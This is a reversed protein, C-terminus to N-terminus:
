MEVDAVPGSIPACEDDEDVGDTEESVDQCYCKHLCMKCYELVPELEEYTFDRTQEEIKTYALYRFVRTRYVLRFANLGLVNRYARGFINLRELLQDANVCFYTEHFFGDEGPSAKTPLVPKKWKVVTVKSKILCGHGLSPGSVFCIAVQFTEGEPTEDFEKKLAKFYYEELVSTVDTCYSRLHVDKFGEFDAPTLKHKNDASSTYVDFPSLLEAGKGAKESDIYLFNM